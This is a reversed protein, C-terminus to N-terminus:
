APEFQSTSVARRDYREQLAPMRDTFPIDHPTYGPLYTRLVSPLVKRQRGLAMRRREGIGTVAQAGRALEQLLQKKSTAKLDALVGEPRLITEIEMTEPKNAV